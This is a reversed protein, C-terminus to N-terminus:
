GGRGGKGGEGARRAPKRIGEEGQERSTTEGEDRRGEQGGGGETGKRGVVAKSGEEGHERSTTESVSTQESLWDELGGADGGGAESEGVEGL